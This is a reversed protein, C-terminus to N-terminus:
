KEKQTEIVVRQFKERDERDNSTNIRKNGDKKAISSKTKPLRSASKTNTENFILIKEAM